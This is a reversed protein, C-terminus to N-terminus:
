NYWIKWLNLFCYVLYLWTSSFVFTATFIKYSNIKNSLLQQSDRRFSIGSFVNDFFMAHLDFVEGITSCFRVISLRNNFLSSQEIMWASVLSKVFPLFSDCWAFFIAFSNLFYRWIHLYRKQTKNNSFIPFVDLFLNYFSNLHSTANLQSSVTSLCIYYNQRLM